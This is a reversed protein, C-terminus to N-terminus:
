VGGLGILIMPMAIVAVVITVAAMFSSLEVDGGAEATFGPTMSAMPAFLIMCAVARSVQDIPLLFWVALAIASSIVYRTILYKAARRLRGRDLRIEFGVGIMLMAMFPNAAGVLEAFDLIPGPFHLNTLNMTLLVLYLVFIHSRFMTGIFRIVGSGQGAITMGASYGIGAASLSNGVDFMSTSTIASPGMMGSTYPTAFAGINFGGVNLVAFARDARTGGLELLFGALQHTINAAIAVATLLFLSATVELDNFAGILAAPLTIRLVIKSLLPFDRISAWGLRKILFGIVLIAVLSLANVIVDQM